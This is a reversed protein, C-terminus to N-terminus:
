RDQVNGREDVGGQAGGAREREGGGQRAGGGSIEAKRAEKASVKTTYSGDDGARAGLPTAALLVGVIAATAARRDVLRADDRAARAIVTRAPRSTRRSREDRTQTARRTAVIARGSATALMANPNTSARKARARRSTRVRARPRADPARSPASDSHSARHSYSFSYQAADRRTTRIHVSVSTSHQERAIAAAASRDHVRM